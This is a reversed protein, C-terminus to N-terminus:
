TELLDGKPQMTDESKGSWDELQKLYDSRVQTFFDIVVQSAYDCYTWPLPEYAHNHYLLTVEGFIGQGLYQRHAYNKVTSLVLNWGTLYGPDLNITRRFTEQEQVAFHKQLAEAVLKVAVLSDMPMLRTFTVFYKWVRGGMEQDYYASFRSFDYRDSHSDIPGLAQELAEEARTHYADATTMIATFCKAPPPPKLRTDTFM